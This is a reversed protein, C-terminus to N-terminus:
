LALSASGVLGSAPDVGLGGLDVVVVAVAVICPDAAPCAELRDSSPWHCWDSFLPQGAFWTSYDNAVVQVLCRRAM